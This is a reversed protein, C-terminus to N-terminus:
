KKKHEKKEHEKHHEHKIGKAPKAHKCSMKEKHEAKMHAKKAHAM